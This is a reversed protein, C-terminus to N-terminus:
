FDLWHDDGQPSYSSLYRKQLELPTLDAYVPEQLLALQWQQPLKQGRNPLHMHGKSPAKFIKLLM